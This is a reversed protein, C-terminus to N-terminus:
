GQGDAGAQLHHGGHEVLIDGPQTARIAPVVHIPRPVPMAGAGSRHSQAPPPHWHGPRPHPRGVPGTLQVQRRIVQEGRGLDEALQGHLLHQGAQRRAAVPAAQLGRPLGHLLRGRRGRLRRHGAPEDGGGLGRKALQHAAAEIVQIQDREHGVPHVEALVGAHDRQADADVPGLVRQRDLFARGLVGGQDRIQDGPQTLAAQIDGLGDQRHDVPGLREGARDVIDEVLRENM